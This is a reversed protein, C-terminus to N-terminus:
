YSGQIGNLHIVYPRKSPIPSSKIHKPNATQKSISIEGGFSGMSGSPVYTYVKKFLTSNLM